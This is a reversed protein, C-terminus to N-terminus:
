DPSAGGAEVKHGELQLRAALARPGILVLESVARSIGVYLLTDEVDASTAVLLATDAELGKSRHVTECVTAGDERREWPGLGLHSRVADRVSTSVAEVLIESPDRQEIALRELEAAVAEVAEEMSGAEIWRISSEPRTPPAAAGSLFWRVLRAIGYTNRCNTVLEARTWGDEVSPVTFGREYLVQEEDAALLLRGLPNLLAALLAIWAPSFDQAEDVVITDFRDTVAHWNRLFHGPATYSWFDDGADDPIDLHPMGKLGELALRLFAGIVLNEADDPLRARLQDALPENYCTLLTRDGRSFARGAWGIALRTKGTGVSGTVVARRNVDLRELVKIHDSCIQDLRNRAAIARAAPNWTFEVTPCLIHVIDEVGSESLAQNGWRSLMLNEVAAESDELDTATLIQARHIGLPLGGIVGDISPLAVGHEVRLHTFADSAERLRRQLAYANSSAQSHPQPDLPVGKSVWVGDRIELHRHGKVEIDVVGFTHHVLVVDLEYDGREKAWLTVNPMILWGDNLQDRFTEVVRREAENKLRWLPFDEPILLGV